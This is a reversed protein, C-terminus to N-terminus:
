RARLDRWAAEEVGQTDHARFTEVVTGDKRLLAVDRDGSAGPEHPSAEKKVVQYGTPLYPARREGFHEDAHGNPPEGRPTM